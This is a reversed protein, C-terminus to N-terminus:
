IYWDIALNGDGGNPLQGGHGVKDGNDDLLPNQGCNISPVNDKVHDYAIVFAAGVTNGILKPIFTHSFAPYHIGADAAALHDADSSTIVVRNTQSVSNIIAGSYCAEMTCFMIYYTVQDLWGDLESPLIWENPDTDDVYGDNNSDLYFKGGSGGHNVLYIFCEDNSDSKSKLWSTIASQVNSKSAYAGVDNIGDGNSDRPTIVNLYDISTSTFGLSLLTKYTEDIENEFDEQLNGYRSGGCVIVAWRKDIVVTTYSVYLFPDHNSDASYFVMCEWGTPTTGERSSNLKFQTRGQKNVQSTPISLTIWTLTKWNSTSWQCVYLSGCGWDNSELSSGYIPQSGGYVKVNFDTVSKDEGTTKLYLKVTNITASDPIASTDFSVFSRFQHYPKPISPNEVRMDVHGIFLVQDSIYVNTIENPPYTSGYKEIYGDLSSESYFIPDFSYVEGAFFTKSAFTIDAKKGSGYQEVTVSNFNEIADEWGLYLQFQSEEFFSICCDVMKDAKTKMGAMKQNTTEPTEVHWVMKYTADSAAKFNISCEAINAFDYTIDFESGDMMIQSEVVRVSDSFTEYKFTQSKVDIQTSIDGETKWLEWAAKTAAEKTMNTNFIRVGFPTILVSVRPCQISFQNDSIAKFIYEVYKSGDWIVQPAAYINSQTPAGDVYTTLVNPSIWRSLETKETAQTAQTSTVVIQGNILSLLILIVSFLSLSKKM